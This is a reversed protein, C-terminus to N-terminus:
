SEKVYIGNLSKGDPIKIKISTIKNTSSFIKINRNKIWLAYLTITSGSTFNTNVYESNSYYQPNTADSATAWGIFTYGSRIPKTSSIHLISDETYTQSSPAGSGNNANYAITCTKLARWVAYLILNANTSYTAGPQYSASTATSSTSWGLFKYGSKIPINTTLKLSVNYTKIQSLPTNIGGNANYTITYATKQPITYTWTHGGSGLTQFSGGYVQGFSSDWGVTLEVYQVSTTKSYTRTSFSDIQRQGSGSGWSIGSWSGSGSPDPSLTEWWSSGYNNTDYYDYRYVTPAISVSSTSESANWDVGIAVNEGPYYWEISM